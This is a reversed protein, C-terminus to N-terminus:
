LKSLVVVVQRECVKSLIYMILVGYIAMVVLGEVDWSLM